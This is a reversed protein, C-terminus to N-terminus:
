TLIDNKQQQTVKQHAQTHIIPKPGINTLKRWPPKARELRVNIFITYPSESM